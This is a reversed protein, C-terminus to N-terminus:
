RRPSDRSHEEDSGRFGAWRLRSSVGTHKRKGARELAHQPRDTRALQTQPGHHRILPTRTTLTDPEKGRAGFPRASVRTAWLSAQRLALLTLHGFAQQACHWCSARQRPVSALGKHSHHQRRPCGGGTWPRDRADPEPSVRNGYSCRPFCDWARAM